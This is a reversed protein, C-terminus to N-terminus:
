QRKFTTMPTSARQLMCCPRCPVLCFFFTLRTGLELGNRSFFVIPIVRSMQSRVQSAGQTKPQTVTRSYRNMVPRQSGPHGADSSVNRVSSSSSLSRRSSSALRSGLRHKPTSLMIEGITVGTGHPCLPFSLCPSEYQSQFRALRGSRKWFLFPLALSRLVAFIRRLSPPRFVPVARRRIHVDSARTSTPHLPVSPASHM